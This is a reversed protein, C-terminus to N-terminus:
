AKPLVVDHESPYLNKVRETPIGKTKWFVEAVKQVNVLLAEADAINVSQKSKSASKLTNWVLTHLDPNSQLHEPKFYDGWLVAIEHKCIEAHQEKVAVYRSLKAHYDALDQPSANDAPVKLDRILSDMRIITHAALQAAYPDYIGCPIDCHAYALESPLIENTLNFFSKLISM